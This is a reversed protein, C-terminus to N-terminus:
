NISLRVDCINKSSRLMIRKDYTAISHISNKKYKLAVLKCFVEEPQFVQVQNRCDQTTRSMYIDIFSSHFPKGFFDEKDTLEKGEIKIRSNEQSAGVMQILKSDKTLFWRDKHDTTIRFNPFLIKTRHKDQQFSIGSSNPNNTPRNENYASETLRKAIQALPNPGTTLKKKLEYLVNEFPYASLTSLVGFREVEDAIHCLNHVNSTVFQEGYLVKFEAIFEQFLSRAIHLVYKYRNTSCIRVACFLKLFHEFYKEPLYQKLIAIPAYNLFIRYELGKWLSIFDLSHGFYIGVVMPAIHSHEFVNCQIPWFNKESSNFLPLGDINVNLSITCAGQLNRFNRRLCNELGQHWYFETESMSIIDLSNPMKMLTRPDKPLNPGLNVNLIEMLGKLATQTIEHESTWTQLAEMLHKRDEHSSRVTYEELPSDVIDPSDNEFVMEMNLEDYVYLM